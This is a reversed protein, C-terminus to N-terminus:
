QSPQPAPSAAGRRDLVDRERTEDLSVSGAFAPEKPRCGYFAGTLCVGRRLSTSEFM